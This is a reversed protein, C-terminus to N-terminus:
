KSLAIGSMSLIFLIFIANFIISDFLVFNIRFFNFIIFFLYSSLFFLNSIYLQNLLNSSLFNIALQSQTIAGEIESHNQDTCVSATAIHFINIVVFVLAIGSTTQHFTLKIFGSSPLVIYKAAFSTM